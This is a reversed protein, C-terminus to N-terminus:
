EVNQIRDESNQIGFEREEGGMWLWIGGVGNSLGRVQAAPRKM